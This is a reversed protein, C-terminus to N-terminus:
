QTTRRRLIRRCVFTEEFMSRFRQGSLGYLIFNVSHNLFSCVDALTGPISHWGYGYAIEYLSVGLFPINLFLFCATVTFLTTVTKATSDKKATTASSSNNGATLFRRRGAASYLGRVILSNVTCITCFPVLIYMFLDIYSRYKFCYDNTFGPFVCTSTEHDWQLCINPLNLASIVLFAVLVYIVAHKRTCYNAVAFPHCVAIYRDVTVAVTIWSSLQSFILTTAFSESCMMREFGKYPRYIGSMELWRFIGGNILLGFDSLALFALYLYFSSLKSLKLLVVFSLTNGLLGLSTMIPWVIEYLYYYFGSNGEEGHDTFNNVLNSTNFLDSSQNQLSLNQGAM